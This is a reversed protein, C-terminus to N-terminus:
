AAVSEGAACIDVIHIESDTVKLFMKGDCEKIYYVHTAGHPGADVPEILEHLKGDDEWSTLLEKADECYGICDTLKEIVHLDANSGFNDLVDTIIKRKM